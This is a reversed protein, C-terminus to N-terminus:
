IIEEDEEDEEDEEWEVSNAYANIMNKIVEQDEYFVFESQMANIFDEKSEEFEYREALINFTEDIDQECDVVYVYEAETDFTTEAWDDGTAEIMGYLHCGGEEYYMYFNVDPNKSALALFWNDAPCWATSFGFGTSVIEDKDSEKYTSLIENLTVTADKLTDWKTSWNANQWNYGVTSYAQALIDAPVPVTANFTYVEKNREEDTVNTECSYYARKGKMGEICNVIDELRGEMKIYNGCWNPM